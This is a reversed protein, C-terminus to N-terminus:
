ATAERPFTALKNFKFLGFALTVWLYKVFVIMWSNGLIEIQYFIRETFEYNFIDELEELLFIVLVM